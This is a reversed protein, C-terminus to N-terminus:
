VFGVEGRDGRHAALMLPTMGVVNRCELDAGADVLARVTELTDQASGVYSEPAPECGDLVVLLPAEVGGSRADAGAALLSRVQFSWECRLYESLFEMWVWSLLVLWKGGRCLVRM